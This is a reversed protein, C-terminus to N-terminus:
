SCQKRTCVSLINFRNMCPILGALVLPPHMFHVFLAQSYVISMATNIGAVTAPVSDAYGSTSNARCFYFGADDYEVGIFLLDRSGNDLTVRPTTETVLVNQEPTQLFWSYTPPPYSDAECSLHISGGILTLVSEPQRTIIPQVLLQVEDSDLGAVNVVVCTYTGGDETANVSDIVYDGDNSQQLIAYTGQFLGVISSVNLPPSLATSGLDIFSNTSIWVFM